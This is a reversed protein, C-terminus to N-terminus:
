VSFRKRFLGARASFPATVSSAGQGLPAGPDSVVAYFVGDPVTLYARGFVSSLAKTVLTNTEKEFVAILKGAVPLEATKELFVSAYSGFVGVGRLVAIVVYTACVVLSLLSPFFIVYLVSALLGIGFILFAVNTLVVEHYLLFEKIPTIRPATVAGGQVPVDFPQTPQNDRILMPQGSYISESLLPAASVLGLTTNQADVRITYAGDPVVASFSGDSQTIVTAAVAGYANVLTVHGLAIPQHTVSDYVVGWPKVAPTIGLVVLLNQWLLYPFLLLEEVGAIPVFIFLLLALAVIITLGVVALSFLINQIFPNTMLEALARNMTDFLEQLWQIVHRLFEVIQDRAEPLEITVIDTVTNIIPTIIPIVVSEPTFDPESPESQGTEPTPTAPRTPRVTGPVAPTTPTTPTVPLTELPTPVVPWDEYRYEGSGGYICQPDDRDIFGDGDDDIGNTCQTLTEDPDDDDDTRHRSPLYDTQVCNALVTCNFEIWGFNESWAYGLDGGNVGRFYGDGDIQVQPVSSNNFPGFNIWGTNEGWAYGSLTGEGSIDVRFNGNTSSCGSSTDSCNMVIYGALAGWAYGSLGEDTVRIGYADQTTFKGFNIRTDSSTSGVDPLNYLNVLYNGSNRPDITGNIDSAYASWGIFLVSLIIFSFAFRLKM